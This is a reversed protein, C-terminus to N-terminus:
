CHLPLALPFSADFPFLFKWLLFFSHSSYSFRIPPFPSSLRLGASRITFSNIPQWPGEASCRCLVGSSLDPHCNKFPPDISGQMGRQLTAATTQKPTPCPNPTPHLFPFKPPPYPWRKCPSKLFLSQCADQLLPATLLNCARLLSLHSGIAKLLRSTGGLFYRM